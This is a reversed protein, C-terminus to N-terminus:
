KVTVQYTYDHRLTSVGSATNITLNVTGLPTGGLAPANISGCGIAPLLACALLLLLLAPLRRGRPLLVGLLAAFSLTGLLPPAAPHTPAPELQAHTTSTNIVLTTTGGGQLTAPQFSCTIGSDSPPVCALLITGSFGNIPTVVGAVAASQGRSIVAVGPVFALAYDTIGISIVNSTVPAFYTDGSYVAYVSNSGSPLLATTFSAVAVGAATSPSVLASGLLIPSTGSLYFRVTGTPSAGTATAGTLTTTLVVNLGAAGTTLSSTLVIAPAATTTITITPSTSVAYFGNGSYVATLAHAAAGTFTATTSATAVGAAVAITGTGLKTTGDFFDVTGAIPTTTTTSATAVTATLVTPQGTIPKAPALSLATTTVITGVATSSISLTVPNCTFNANVTCTIQLSYKGAPPAPIVVSGTGTNGGTNISFTGVYSAGTVGPIVALFTTGAPLQATGPLTVTVTLTSNSATTFTPTSLSANISAVSPTITLGLTNGSSATYNSDGSYKSTISYTGATLGALTLTAAGGSIPVSSIGPIGTFTVTGSPLSGNVSASSGVSINLTINQGFSASLASASITTTTTATGVAVNVLNSTAKLYNSDGQYVATIPHTAGALLLGSYTANPASGFGISNAGDFFQVGGTVPIGPLGIVPASLTVPTGATPNAPTVTLTLSPAFQPVSISATQPTYCTFSADASTCSAQLAITGAKNTNFSFSAAASGGSGSLSQTIPQASTIGSPTVTISASPTGFGSPSSLTVTATLPGGLAVTAPASITFIAAEPQVTVNATAYTNAYTADGAYTATIPYAGGPLLFASTVARGAADLAVSTTPFSPNASTFTITGTPVGGGSTSNIAATLTFSTSHVPSSASSTLSLAAASVGHPFAKVLAALDVKGLGLAPTWTGPAAGADPQTYLGPSPGLAYLQPAINGLRVVGPTELAIATVAQAFAGLSDVALDPTHRLSDAPLGPASQWAPRVSDVGDSAVKSAVGSAAVTVVTVDAFNAPFASTASRALLTTIGQAAAQRFLATYTILESQSAMSATARTDLVLLPTANAEIVGALGDVALEPATLDDLGEVSAFLAAAAPSLSPRTLAAYHRAGHVTVARVSVAFARQVQAPYGSLTIRTASSGELSLGASDAWARAAALQEETAGYKAAFQEPSIWRRYVPSAPDALATLFSDLAAARGPDAALTLTLRMRQSAPMEGGDIADPVSALTRAPLAIRGAPQAQAFSPLFVLLAALQLLRVM